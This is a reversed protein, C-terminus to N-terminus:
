GIRREKKMEKLIGRGEEGELGLCVLSPNRYMRAFEGNRGGEAFGRNKNLM